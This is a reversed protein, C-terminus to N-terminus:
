RAVVRDAFVVLLLAGVLTLMPGSWRFLTNARTAAAATLEGHKVREELTFRYHSAYGCLGAGLFLLVCPTVVRLADAFSFLTSSM